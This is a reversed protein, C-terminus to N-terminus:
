SDQEEDGEVEEVDDIDTDELSVPTDDCNDEKHSRRRKRVPPTAGSGRNRAQERAQAERSDYHKIVLEGGFETGDESEDPYFLMVSNSLNISVPAHTTTYYYDHGNRDVRGILRLRLSRM